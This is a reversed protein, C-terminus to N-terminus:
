GLLIRGAVYAAPGALVVPLLIGLPPLASRARDDAPPAASLVADVALDAVLAIVGAVLALRIGRDSGLEARGAGCGWGVLLAAGVGVVLGAVGRRSGTVAVPRPLALDVLRAIALAVGAGLLACVDAFDGGSEVGLAVYTAAALAFVVASVTGAFSRTVGLRPRRALQYLLAVVVVVGVVGAARGIDPGPASALLGDMVGAAAVSIVFNGGSGPADLAALWALALVVQVVFVGGALLGVDLVAFGALVAAVVGAALGTVTAALRSGRGPVAVSEAGGAFPPLVEVSGGETLLVAEHDRGGVPAEDVVYSCRDLVRGLKEGHAARAAALAQALTAADYPEEDVGAAARAAAWYRITGAPM